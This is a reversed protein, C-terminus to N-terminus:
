QSIKNEGALMHDGTARIAAFDVNRVTIAPLYLIHMTYIILYM